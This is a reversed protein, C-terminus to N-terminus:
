KKRSILLQQSRAEHHYPHESDPFLALITLLSNQAAAFNNTQVAQHVLFMQRSFRQELEVEAKRKTEWISSYLSPLDIHGELLDLAQASYFAAMFLNGPSVQRKQYSSGALMFYHRAQPTSIPLPSFSSVSIDRVGWTEKQSHTQKHAFSVINTRQPLLLHSPLRVTTPKGWKGDTWPLFGIEEGNLLVSVEEGQEIGGPSFTLNLPHHDASFSFDAKNEARKYRPLYGYPGSSPLPAPFAHDIKEINSFSPFYLTIYGLGLLLIGLASFVRVRYKCCNTALMFTPFIKRTWFLFLRNLASSPSFQFLLRFQGATIIDKHELDEEQVPRENLSLGNGHALTRLVWAGKQRKITFHESAISSHNIILHNMPDRGVKIEKGHFRWNSGKQPGSLAKLAIGDGSLSILISSIKNLLRM